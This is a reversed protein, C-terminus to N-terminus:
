SQELYCLALALVDDTIYTHNQKLKIMTIILTIGQLLVYAHLMIKKERNPNLAWNYRGNYNQKGRKFCRM